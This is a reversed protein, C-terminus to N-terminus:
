CTFFVLPQLLTLTGPLPGPLSAAEPRLDRLETQNIGTGAKWPRFEVPPHHPSGEVRSEAMDRPRACHRAGLCFTRCPGTSPSAFRSVHLSVAPCSPLDWGCPADCPADCLPHAPLSRPWQASRPAQAVCHGEGAQSWSRPNLSSDPSELSPLDRAGGVRGVVAEAWGEHWDQHVGSLLPWQFGPSPCASGDQGPASLPHVGPFGPPSMRAQGTSLLLQSSCIQFCLGPERTELTGPQSPSQPARDQGPLGPFLTLDQVM